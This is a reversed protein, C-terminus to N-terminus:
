SKDESEKFNSLMDRLDDIARLIETSEDPKFDKTKLGRHWMLCFAGDIINFKKQIERLVVVPNLSVGNKDIIFTGLPISM